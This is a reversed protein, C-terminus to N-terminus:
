NNRCSMKMNRLPFTMKLSKPLHKKPNNETQKQDEPEITLFLKKEKRKLDKKAHKIALINKMLNYLNQLNLSPPNPIRRRIIMIIIGSNTAHLVHLLLHILKIKPPVKRRFEVKNVLRLRKDAEQSVAVKRKQPARIMISQVHEM